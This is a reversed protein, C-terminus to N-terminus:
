PLRLKKARLWLLAYFLAAVFLVNFGMAIFRITWQGIVYQFDFYLQLKFILIGPLLLIELPSGSRAGVIFPFPTILLGFTLLILLRKMNM